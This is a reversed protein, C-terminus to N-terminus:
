KLYLKYSNGHKDRKIVGNKDMSYIYSSINQQYERGLIDYIDKQVIGPNDQIIKYINDPLEEKIKYKRELEVKNEVLNKLHKNAVEIYSFDPNSSNHCHEWMDQFYIKGGKTKYCYNKFRNFINIAKECNKIQQNITVEYIKGVADYIKDEYDSIKESHNQEFRFSLEDENYTRHFKPNSSSKEYNIAKQIDNKSQQIIESKTYPSNDSMEEKKICKQTNSQNNSKDIQAELNLTNEIKHIDKKPKRKFAVVLLVICIFLFLLIGM